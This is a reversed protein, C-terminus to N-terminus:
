ASSGLILGQDILNRRGAGGALILISTRGKKEEMGQILARRIRFNKWFARDFDFYIDVSM